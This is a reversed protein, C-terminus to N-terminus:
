TFVNLIDVPTDILQPTDILACAHLSSGCQHVREHRELKPRSVFSKDCGPHTCIFPLTGSPHHEEAM